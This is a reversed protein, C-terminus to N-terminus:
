PNEGMLTTLSKFLHEGELPLHNVESMSLIVRHEDILIMTPWLSIQFRDQLLEKDFRAQRWPIGMMRVVKEAKGPTEDGNMGLIEFGQGHFEEYVKKQKPLDEMCPVCWTAWFDLLVFRGKVESLHRRTGGFDTFEFDPLVSGVSLQIRHDASASVSRLMFRDTKLDVSQMQLILGSVRFVPASGRARLFEGSGPTMDFKGDGNIDLWERGDTLSIGQDSFDYELRVLLTRNPLRAYGQVFPQATYPVALQGSGAPSSVGDKILWVDMPCVRFLGRPLDVDFAALSKLRDDPPREALRFPIREGPGFRGDRNADVYLIDSGGSPRVILAKYRIAGGKPLALEGAFVKDVPGVAAGLLKAEDASVPDFIAFSLGSPDVHLGGDLKGAFETQALIAIPALSILFLLLGSHLLWRVLAM